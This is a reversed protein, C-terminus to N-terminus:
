TPRASGGDSHRQRGRHSWRGRAPLTHGAGADASQGPPATLPLFGLRDRLCSLDPRDPRLSRRRDSSVRNSRITSCLAWYDAPVEDDRRGHILVIDCHPPAQLMPDADRLSGTGVFEGAADDSLGDAHAAQLDLAGALSVVKRVPLHLAALTALHGGASHGALVVEHLAVCERRAAARVVRVVDRLTGPWGGGVQGTRVYEPLLVLWGDESLAAALGRLHIRDFRARWFGGHILAVTGRRIGEPVYVDVVDGARATGVLVRTPPRAARDLIHTM